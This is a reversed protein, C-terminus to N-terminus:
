EIGLLEPIGLFMAKKTVGWASDDEPGDGCTREGCVIIKKTDDGPLTRSMMDRHPENDWMNVFSSVLLTANTHNINGLHLDVLRLDVDYKTMEQRAEKDGGLAKKITEFLITAEVYAINLSARDLKKPGVM